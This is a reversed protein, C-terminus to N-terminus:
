CSSTFFCSESKKKWETTKRSLTNPVKTYHYKNHPFRLFLEPEVHDAGYPLSLLKSESQFVTFYTTSNTNSRWLIRFICTGEPRIRPSFTQRRWGSQDKHNNKVSLPLLHHKSLPHYFPTIHSYCLTLILLVCPNEEWSILRWITYSLCGPLTGM